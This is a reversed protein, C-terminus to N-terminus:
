TPSIIPAEEQQAVSKKRRQEEELKAKSKLEENPEYGKLNLGKEECILWLMQKFLPSGDVLEVANWKSNLALNIIEVTVDHTQKIITGKGPPSMPQKDIDESDTTGDIISKMFLPENGDDLIFRGLSSCIIDNGYRIIKWGTPSDTVQPTLDESFYGHPNIIQIFPHRNLLYIVDQHSIPRFVNGTALNGIIDKDAKNIM